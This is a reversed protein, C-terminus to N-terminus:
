QIHPDRKFTFFKRPTHDPKEKQSGAASLWPAAGSIKQLKAFGSLVQGPPCLGGQYATLGTRLIIAAKYVNNCRVSERYLLIDELLTVRCYEPITEDSTVARDRKTNLEKYTAIEQAVAITVNFTSKTRGSALYEIYRKYYSNRIRFIPNLAHLLEDKQTHKYEEIHEIISEMKSKVDQTKFEVKRKRRSTERTIVDIYAEKMAQKVKASDMDRCIFSDHICLIPIDKDTMKRIVKYAIESDIYQAKLGKGSNIDKAIEAHHEKLETLMLELQKRFKKRSVTVPPYDQPNAYVEDMVATICGFDTKANVGALMLRKYLARKNEPDNNKAVIYPEKDGLLKDRLAYLIHIHLGAFDIESTYRGNIIIHKRLGKRVQQWWGGYFRGGLRTNETFIRRVWKKSLDIVEDKYEDSELDALDIDIHTRALLQNYNKLANRCGKINSNEPYEVPKKIKVKYRRVSGDGRKFTVEKDRITKRVIITQQDPYPYIMNSSVGFEDELLRILKGRAILRTEYGDAFKKNWYGKKRRIYRKMILSDICKCLPDYNIRFHNYQPLHKFQGKSMCLHTYRKRLNDYNMYLNCILMRMHRFAFDSEYGVEKCLYNVADIVEPASSTLHYNIRESVLYKNFHQKTEEDVPNEDDLDLELEDSM